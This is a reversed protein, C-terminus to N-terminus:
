ARAERDAPRRPPEPRVASRLAGLVMKAAKAATEDEGARAPAAGEASARGRAGSRSGREQDSPLVSPADAGSAVQMREADQERERRWRELAAAQAAKSREAAGSHWPQNEEWDHLTSIRGTRRQVDVLRAERLGRAFAGREGAWKAVLEVDDDSM